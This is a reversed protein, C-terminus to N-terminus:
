QTWQWLTLTHQQNTAKRKGEAIPPIPKERHTIRWHEGGTFTIRKSTYWGSRKETQFTEFTTFQYHFFSTTPKQCSSINDVQSLYTPERRTYGHFRLISPCKQQASCPGMCGAETVLHNTRRFAVCFEMGYQYKGQSEKWKQETKFIHTPINEFM